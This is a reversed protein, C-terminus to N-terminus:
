KKNPIIDYYFTVWEDLQNGKIKRYERSSRIGISIPSKVGIENDTLTVVLKNEPTNEKLGSCYYSLPLDEPDIATVTFEIVNGPKLVSKTFIHKEEGIKWFNGYNDRVLEIRPFYNEVNEEMNRYKAIKSRLEGSIGAILYEQHKLFDRSHATPNRYKELEELYFEIKKFKEFCNRIADIDWNKRIITTLDYFDSYYILRQEIATTPFKKGEEEFRANWIKIRESSVGFHKEYDDGYKRRLHDVLFDRISNELNSIDQHPNMNKFNLMVLTTQRSFSYSIELQPKHHEESAGFLM